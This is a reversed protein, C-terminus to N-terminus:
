LITGIVSMNKGCIKLIFDLSSDKILKNIFMEEAQSTIRM